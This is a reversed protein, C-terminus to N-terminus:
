PLEPGSGDDEFEVDNENWEPIPLPPQPKRPIKGWKKTRGPADFDSQRTRPRSVETFTDGSVITSLDRTGFSLESDLETESNRKQMHQRGSNDWSNFYAPPQQENLPERERQRLAAATLRATNPSPRAPHARAGGYQSASDDPFISADDPEYLEGESVDSLPMGSESGSQLSGLHPPVTGSARSAFGLLQGGSATNSKSPRLFSFSPASLGASRSSTVTSEINDDGDDLSISFMNKSIVSVPAPGIPDADEDQYDDQSEKWRICVQCWNRGTTLSSKSFEALMKVQNCPGGCRRELRPEGSHDRCVMGTNAPTVRQGRGVKSRLANLNKNSFNSPPKWEGGVACRYQSEHLIAYINNSEPKGGKTSGRTSM